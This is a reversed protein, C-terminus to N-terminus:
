ASYFLILALGGLLWWTWRGGALGLRALPERGGTVRLVILSIVLLASLGTGIRNLAPASEPSLLALAALVVYVGAYGLFGYLFWRPRERYRAIHIPSDKFVFMGLVLAVFAPLLMQLSLVITTAPSAYDVTRWMILTLLWTLGFTLGLFAGVQRWNVNRPRAEQMEFRDPEQNMKM